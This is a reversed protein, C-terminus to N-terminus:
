RQNRRLEAVKKGLVGIAWLCSEICLDSSSNNNNNNNTFHFLSIDVVPNQESETADVTVIGKRNIM